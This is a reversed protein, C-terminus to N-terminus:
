REPPMRLRGGCHCEPGCDHALKVAMRLRPDISAVNVLRKFREPLPRRKWALHRNYEGPAESLHHLHRVLEEPEAFDDACIVADDAPMFERINPAGRYVTITGPALAHFVRETVYDTTRSNEFALYFKYNRITERDMGLGRRGMGQRADRLGRALPQEPLPRLRPDPHPADHGQRLPKTGPGPQIRHLGVPRRQAGQDRFAAPPSLFDGYEHWTPYPAPIDSDLRYSMILDFKRLFRRNRLIPYNVDSEMSALIWKQGKRKRPLRRFRSLSPAHFWVADARELLSRDSTFHCHVPLGLTEDLDLPQVYGDGFFHGTYAVILLDAKKLDRPAPLFGTDPESRLHIRSPGDSSSPIRYKCLRANLDKPGILGSM